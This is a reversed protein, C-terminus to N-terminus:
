AAVLLNEVATLRLGGESLQFTRMLGRRAIAHPRKGQIQEGALTVTGTDAREFGSVVNFLTSKGSGNPGILGVIRGAEVTLEVDILVPLAGFSKAVRDVVLLPSGTRM